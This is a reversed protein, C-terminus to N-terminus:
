DVEIPDAFVKIGYRLGSVKENRVVFACNGPVHGKAKAAELWRISAADAWYRNGQGTFLLYGISTRGKFSQWDVFEITNHRADTPIESLKRPPDDEALHELWMVGDESTEAIHSDLSYTRQSKKLGAAIAEVKAQTTVHLSPNSSKKLAEKTNPEARRRSSISQNKTRPKTASSSSSTSSIPPPSSIEPLPSDPQQQRAGPPPPPANVVLGPHKDRAAATPPQPLNQTHGLPSVVIPTMSAM